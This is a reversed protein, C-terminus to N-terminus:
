GRHTYHAGPTIQTNTTKHIYQKMIYITDQITDQIYWTSRINQFNREAKRVGACQIGVTNGSYEWQIGVTNGSYERGGRGQPTKEGGKTSRAPWIPTQTRTPCRHRIHTKLPSPFPHTPYFPPPTFSYLDNTSLLRPIFPHNETTTAM